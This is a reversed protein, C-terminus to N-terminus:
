IKMVPVKRGELRCAINYFALAAGKDTHLIIPDGHNSSIIMSEDEPIVGLLPLGTNDMADDINFEDQRRILRSRVRNVVLRCDSIGAKELAQAASRADRVSVSEPTTVVIASDAACIALRFGSGLGAPSDILIYEYEGSLSDILAKVQGCSPPPDLHASPAALLYLNKIVPHAVVAEDATVRGLLIDNFDLVAKDCLGVVIDLNRLGIDMDLCLTKHGMAALCSGVGGTLSTKGTGGKGSVVAIVSM